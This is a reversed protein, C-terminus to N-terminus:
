FLCGLRAFLNDSSLPSNESLRMTRDGKASGFEMAWFWRYGSAANVAESVGIQTFHPNLINARHDPSSILCEFAEAPTALGAALNEGIESVPYGSDFVNQYFKEGDSLEHSITDHLAMDKTHRLAAQTLEGSYELVRLGDAKRELNVLEIMRRANSTLGFEGANCDPCVRDQVAVINTSGRAMGRSRWPCALERIIYRQSYEGTLAEIPRIQIISRPLYVSAFILGNRVVLVINGDQAGEIKGTWLLFGNREREEKEELATLHINDFLQLEISEVNPRYLLKDPDLRAIRQRFVERGIPWRGLQTGFASVRTTTEGYTSGASNSVLLVSAFAASATFLMCLLIAAVCFGSKMTTM